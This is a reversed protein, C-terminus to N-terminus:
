GVGTYVVHNIVVIFVLINGAATCRFVASPNDIDESPLAVKYNQKSIEVKGM